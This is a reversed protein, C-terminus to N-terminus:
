YEKYYVSPVNNDKFVATRITGDFSRENAGIARAYGRGLNNIFQNVAEDSAFIRGTSGISANRKHFEEKNHNYLALDGYFLSVMEM